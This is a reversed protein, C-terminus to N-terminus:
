ATDAGGPNRPQPPDFLDLLARTARSPTTAATTAVSFLWTLDSDRLPLVAM